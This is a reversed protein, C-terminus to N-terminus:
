PHDPEVPLGHPFGYGGDHGFTSMHMTGDAFVSFFGVTTRPVPFDLAIAYWDDPFPPLLRAILRVDPEDAWGLEAVNMRWKSEM